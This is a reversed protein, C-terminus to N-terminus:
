RASKGHAPSPDVNMLVYDSLRRDRETAASLIEKVIAAVRVAEEYPAHKTEGGKRGGGSATKRDYGVDLNIYRHYSM